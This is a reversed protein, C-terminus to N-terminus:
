EVARLFSDISRVLREMVRITQVVDGGRVELAHDADEVVLSRGGTAAELELLYAPDYYRDATGIVFLSPSAASKIQERLLDNTLLPTVWICRAGAFRPDNTLVYGMALSGISKGILILRDYERQALGAECAASVDQYLWQSREESPLTPFEPQRHYAYEVRLLDSGRHLVYRAPYYLAPMDATYAFGSFLMTLERTPEGQLFFTNPVQDGQYGKIDLTTVSYM